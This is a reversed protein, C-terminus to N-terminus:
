LSCQHCTDGQNVSLGLDSFGLLFYDCLCNPHKNSQDLLGYFTCHLFWFSVSWWSNSLLLTEPLSFVPITYIYHTLNHRADEILWM